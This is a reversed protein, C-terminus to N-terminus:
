GMLSCGISSKPMQATEAFGSGWVSFVSRTDDHTLTPIFFIFKGFIPSIIHGRYIINFLNFGMVHFANEVLIVLKPLDYDIQKGSINDGTEHLM